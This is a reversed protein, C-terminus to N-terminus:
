GPGGAGSRGGVGVTPEGANGGERRGGPPANTPGSAPERMRIGVELERDGHFQQLLNGHLSCRPYPGGVVWSIIYQGGAPCVPCTGGKIYQFCQEPRMTDGIALNAALPVCCTQLCDIQRLNNLCANRHATRRSSFFLPGGVAAVALVAAGAAILKTRTNMPDYSVSDADCSSGLGASVCAFAEHEAGARCEIAKSDSDTRNTRSATPSRPSRPM